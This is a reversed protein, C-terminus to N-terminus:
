CVIEAGKSISASTGSDSGWANPMAAWEAIKQLDKATLGNPCRTFEFREGVMNGLRHVRLYCHGGDYAEFLKPEWQYPAEMNFNKAIPM